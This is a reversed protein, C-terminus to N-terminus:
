PVILLSLGKTGEPSGDIRALVLHIINEALDHEGSSIFIKSGTIAFSGDAGPKARTRVLGLDTGAQPETLNMTGAWTGAMMKPLYLRKQQENGHLGIAAIAAQVLGPYMTFAMNAGSTYESVAAALVYPLGQGGYDPSGSLGIWGGEAFKRYAERFGPPTTVSGDENRKCGARDGVANLPALVDSSFSGAESLVAEVLDPTAEAFGPLNAYRGIGLVDALIFLTDAVPAKFATM